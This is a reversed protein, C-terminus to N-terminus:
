SRHVVSGSQRLGRVGSGGFEGLYVLSFGTGVKAPLKGPFM